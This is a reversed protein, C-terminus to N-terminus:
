QRLNGEAMKGALEQALEVIRENVRMLIAARDEDRRIQKERAIQQSRADGGLGILGNLSRILQSLADIESKNINGGNELVSRGAAEVRELLMGAVARVKAGIEDEPARDLRWGEREAIAALNRGSCGSAQAVLEITPRAGEILARRARWVALPRRKM